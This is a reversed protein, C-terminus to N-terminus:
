LTSAAPTPFLDTLAFRDVDILGRDTLKLRPIVELAMFSMAMFPDDLPSGLGHAAAVVADYDAAVEAFPRDSMLGGIPLPLRAVLRTGDCVALGGAMDAVVRAATRLSEDDAAVVVLNHHDHAVTGAIAGRRLGFGQILATASNGHRGHREAVTIKLIDREVDPWVVGDAVKVPLERCETILQDPIVGIVRATPGDAPLSPKLQDLDIRCTADPVRVGLETLPQVLKGGAAVERGAAFVRDPVPADLDTFTFLDARRGPAIAGVDRLGFWEAANLSAMRLATIPDLGFRIARRLMQDISGADRLESPTRDDTCFCVRRSNAETVMPLLADLNRANSAERILLYLGRALKERAEEATVAEHDSGVGAAAYACLQAGSLGPAHGDIPRGAFDAIRRQLDADGAVVGPFNMVEALGHVVRDDRLRRLDDVTVAAGATSMPSAPVCSPAMMVVNLPLVEAAAAMARVAGAGAVNGIEHPDAVVSTVGRPLVASAFQAPTCLSSELHVHADILGPAVFAGALDVTRQGTLGHGVAAIRDGHLALQAEEIEGSLVNVIRGGALVVDAPRDGRAVALLESLETM